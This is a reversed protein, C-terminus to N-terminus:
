SCVPSWSTTIFRTLRWDVSALWIRYRRYDALLEEVPGDPAVSAAPMVGAERLFALPVRLSQPSVWTRHGAVRRGEIFRQQQEITLGAPSLGEAELWSSLRGLQGLRKEIRSQSFGADALWRGFGVAYPELPGPATRCWCAPGGM